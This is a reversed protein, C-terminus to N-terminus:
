PEGLGEALAQHTAPWEALAEALAASFVRVDDLPMAALEEALKEAARQLDRSM